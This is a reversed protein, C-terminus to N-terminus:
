DDKHNGAGVPGSTEDNQRAKNQILMRNIDASQLKNTSNTPGAVSSSKNTSSILDFNKNVGLQQVENHGWTYLLGEESTAAAHNTGFALNSLKLDFKPNLTSDPFTSIQHFDKTRDNKKRKAEQKRKQDNISEGSESTQYEFDDDSEENSDDEDSDESDSENEEEENNNQENQEGEDPDM